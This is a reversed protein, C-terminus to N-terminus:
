KEDLLEYMQEFTTCDMLQNRLEKAGDFSKIYMSVYKKVVPVRKSPNDAPDDSAWTKEFLKIHTALAKTRDAISFDERQQVPALAQIDEMLARGVMVGDVGYQEAKQLAEERSQVDGNGIIVTSSTRANRVQVAKGIEDWHCPVRSKEAVTRGHITLAALDFDLLFNVWEETVITNIGIRTKVSVPLGAAGDLTAQIVKAAHDHNGILAACLGKGVIDRQPCGMNIDIGDFGLEKVYKAGEFYNEPNHGWIQAIIPREIDPNFKLRHIVRKQGVSFIGDVNTFETFFIDPRGYQALMQRFVTDTVDEMPAQIILPKSLDKWPNPM